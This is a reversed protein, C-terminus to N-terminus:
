LIPFLLLKDPEKWHVMELLDHSSPESMLTELSSISPSLSSGPVGTGLAVCTKEQTRRNKGTEKM